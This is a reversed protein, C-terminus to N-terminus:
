KFLYKSIQFFFFFVFGLGLRGQGFRGVLPGVLLLRRGQGLRGQKKACCGGGRDEEELGLAAGQERHKERGRKGRGPRSGVGVGRAAGLRARRAVLGGAISLARGPVRGGRAWAGQESRGLGQARAAGSGACAARVRAGARQGLALGGRAGRSSVSWAAVGLAM